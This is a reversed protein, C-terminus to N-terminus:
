YGIYVYLLTAIYRSGGISTRMMPGVLDSFVRKLPKAARRHECAMPKRPVRTQKRLNCANCKDAGKLDGSEIGLVHQVSVQVVKNSMHERRRRWVNKPNTREAPVQNSCMRTVQEYQEKHTELDCMKVKGSFKHILGM